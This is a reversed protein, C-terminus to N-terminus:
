KLLKLDGEIRGVARELDVKTVVDESSRSM